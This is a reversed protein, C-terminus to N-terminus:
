RVLGARIAKTVAHIRNLAGLKHRASDLHAKVTEPSITMLVAIDAVTKGEATWALAECERRTISNLDVQESRCHLDYAKQHIFHALLVLNSTLTRRRSRWESASDNTTISFLAWLGNQPGRVPITLGQKGVGADDAEHFLKVVRRDSIELTSWDIPLLSRAGVNFVPDINVYGSKKYHDVWDANYTLVLFPDDITRGPFTPCHYVSNCLGFQETVKFVFDNLGQLTPETDLAILDMLDIEAVKALSALEM